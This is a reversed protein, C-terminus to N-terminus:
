QLPVWFIFASSYGGTATAKYYDGKKVPITASNYSNYFGGGNGTGYSVAAAARITTPNSAADSYILVEADQASAPTIITATAFGDTTAQYATNITKESWDGFEKNDDENNILTINGSSNNYFSGLL